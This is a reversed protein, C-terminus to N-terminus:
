SAREASMLVHGRIHGCLTFHFPRHGKGQNLFHCHLTTSLSTPRKNTGVIQLLMKERQILCVCTKPSTKVVLARDLVETKRRVLQLDERGGVRCVMDELLRVLTELYKFGNDLGGTNNTTHKSTSVIYQLATLRDEGRVSSTTLLHPTLQM